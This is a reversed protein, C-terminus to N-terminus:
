STPVPERPAEARGRLVERAIAALALVTGAIGVYTGGPFANAPILVMVAIVGYAVRYAVPIPAQFYGVVAVTGLFIGLLADTLALVISLADGNMILAPSYAFMFPIIYACWSMRTASWGTKWQDAKAITAAAWETNEASFAFSAPQIEPPALRRLSM